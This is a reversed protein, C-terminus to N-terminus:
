GLAFAFASGVGVKLIQKDDISSIETPIVRPNTDGLGMEGNTNAGWAYAKGDKSLM